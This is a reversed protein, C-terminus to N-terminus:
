IEAILFSFSFFFFSKGGLLYLSVVFHRAKLQEHTLRPDIDHTLKPDIDDRLKLRTVNPLFVFKNGDLKVM